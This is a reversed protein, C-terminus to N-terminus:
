EVAVVALAAGDVTARGADDPAADLVGADVWRRVTDDSVGLLEAAESIRFRTM